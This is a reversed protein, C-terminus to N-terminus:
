ASYDRYKITWTMTSRTDGHVYGDGILNSTSEPPWIEILPLEDFIWMTSVQGPEQEARMRPAIEEINWDNRGLRNSVCRGILADKDAALKKAVETAYHALIDTIGSVEDGGACVM